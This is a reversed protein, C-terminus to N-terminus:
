FVGGLETNPPLPHVRNSIGLFFIQTFSIVGQKCTDFHSLMMKM